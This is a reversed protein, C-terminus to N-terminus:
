LKSLGLLVFDIVAVHKPGAFGGVEKMKDLIRKIGSFDNDHEPAEVYLDGGSYGFPTHVKVSCKGGTLVLWTIIVAGFATMITKSGSNNM